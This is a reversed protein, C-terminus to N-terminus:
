TRIGLIKTVSTRLLLKEKSLNALLSLTLVRYTELVTEHGTKQSGVRHGVFPLEALQSALPRAVVVSAHGSHVQDGLTKDDPEVLAEAEAWSRRAVIELTVTVDEELAALDVGLAGQDPQLIEEEVLFRKQGNDLPHRLEPPSDQEHADANDDEHGHEDFTIIKMSPWTNYTIYLKERQKPQAIWVGDEFGLSGFFRCKVSVRLRGTLDKCCFTFRM